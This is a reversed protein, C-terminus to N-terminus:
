TKEGFEPIKKAFEVERTVKAPVPLTTPHSMDCACTGDRQASRMTVGGEGGQINGGAGQIPGTVLKMSM